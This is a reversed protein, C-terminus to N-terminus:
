PQIRYDNWKLEVGNKYLTTLFLTGDEDYKLWVGDPEGSLYKGTQKIKGNEWYRTFKGDPIGQEYNMEVATKGNDYLTIWTGQRAGDLYKGKETLNNNRYFWEGEEANALYEGKSIEKGQEDYEAYEGELEGQVYNAEILLGRHPYYWLWQGEKQGKKNYRGTIEIEQNEFYYKWEGAPLSNMYYGESRLTGAPYFEKWKGQRKGNLDTIGEFRLFGNSYVYGRIINGATDYERRIGEPVGKYYTATISPQGNPYYAIKRELVKTEPADEVIMDHEYKLVKVFQGTTDYYKFFGNKRDNQYTGEEQLLGNAWFFKWKGQKYGFRDKRNIFERKLMSGRYYNTVAIVMGAHDYEKELGHPVGNEYPTEKKLMSDEFFTRTSGVLTDAKWQEVIFEEPLYQVRTGDKKGQRYNIELIKKGELDYFTWISDLLYNERNGESMLVGRPHYSKWWGDPQGERLYGESSKTGDPYYFVHYGNLPVTDQAVAFRLSGVFVLIIGFWFRLLKM